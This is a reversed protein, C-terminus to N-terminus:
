RNFPFENIWHFGRNVLLYKSVDFRRLRVSLSDAGLRGELLLHAGDPQSYHLTNSPNNPKFLTVTKQGDDYKANWGHLSNDMLRLQFSRANDIMVRNWRTTDTLLPPRTEGNLTFSEVDYLGYIPPRKPHLRTQVYSQWGEQVQTFLFYGVFLVQFSAGAILAWRPRFFPLKLDAPPVPRNWILFCMLRHFDPVLLVIVMLLLNLSYLKVPVDYCFNLAVINILVAASIMAGLMTTRRALLLLGGIVEALGSFITYAPSAGMFSWLIGMPSFDGYTETLKYFFPYSFQLPFIKALGYSLLTFSLTYRVLVRLWSHLWQYNPRRRDLVSWVLTALLAFFLYLFNEVYSLTTDGSGTPFYTVARGSLHFIHVAVWPTIAHWLRTYVYAVFGTKPISELLSVRGFEPAVYLVLYCFFFRFFFRHSFHWSEPQKSGAPTPTDSNEMENM